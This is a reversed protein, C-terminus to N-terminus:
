KKLSVEGRNYRRTLSNERINYYYIINTTYGIKLKKNRFVMKWFLPEEGINYDENFKNKKLIKKAFICGWPALNPQEISNVIAKGFSSDWSIWTLDNHKEIEKLITWIYNDLIMDDCDIFAIYNGTALKVGLNRNYCVGKNEENKVYIDVLDKFDDGDSADDILVVEVNTGARQLNLINLLKKTEKHTEYYPIIISLKDEM